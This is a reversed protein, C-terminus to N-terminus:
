QNVAEEAVPEDPDDPKYLHCTVVNDDADRPSPVVDSCIDGIYEPCRPHFKCGSPPNEPSPVEGKIRTRNRGGSPNPVPVAELLARTYPHKPDTIVSETDGHEAIDGLYMIATDDCMYRILSLDHSIIIYTLNYEDRLEKLLNLVGARISVDLMSVPEDAVIVDPNVVLARAIAVRQQEGGSLNRPFQDLYPEAPELGADSLTDIVRERRDNYTDGIDNIKLPEAVSDMVTFRPNLSEFPDQFIMQVRQHFERRDESTMEAYPTGDFSVVGDTPKHLNVLLKGLTTKGCGSEGALGLITGEEIELSVGDVAKVPSSENGLVTDILGQEGGFYKTVNEARIIPAM